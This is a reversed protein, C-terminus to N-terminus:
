VEAVGSAGGCVLTVWFAGRLGAWGVRKMTPSV